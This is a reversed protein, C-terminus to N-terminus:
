RALQEYHREIDYLAGALRQPLMCRAKAHNISTEGYFLNGLYSVHVADRLDTNGDDQLLDNVFAFHAAVADWDRRAIAHATALKLEGVELHLIGLDSEDIRDAIEPFHSALRSAFDSRAPTPQASKFRMLQQLYGFARFDLRFRSADAATGQCTSFSLTASPSRDTM